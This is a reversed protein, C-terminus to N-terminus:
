QLWDEMDSRLLLLKERDAPAYGYDYCCYVTKGNRGTQIHTIFRFSFGLSNLRERSIKLTDEHTSLLSELIKRNKELLGNIKRMRQNDPNHLRQHNNHQNRCYDDCFKKDSRGRLPKKCTGCCRSETQTIMNKQQLSVQRM